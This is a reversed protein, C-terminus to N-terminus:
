LSLDIGVLFTRPVIAQFNDVGNYGVNNYWPLDPNLGPYKTITFVNQVSAYVRLNKVGKIWERPITFGLQMLNCKVFDAKALFFTSMKSFNGNPDPYRLIPFSNSTGEGHWFQGALGSTFNLHQTPNMNLRYNQFYKAGWSGYFETRFDLHGYSLQLTLGGTFKPWPAGLDTLDSNDIVGDGNTDKYKLDGAKADPQLLDGSKNVYAAAEADTQFVGGVIYGYWAGPEHGKTLRSRFTAIPDNAEHGLIPDMGGLDKVISKYHNLTFNVGLHLKHTINDHYSLTADWGKTTMSGVNAQQTPYYGQPYGLTYDVTVNELLNSPNRVYKEFTFNLKDKILTADLGFTYDKQIEWKIEPNAINSPMYGTIYGGAADPTTTPSLVTLYASTSKPLNGGSEGWSARLKLYSITSTLKEFFPEDSIVWAGSVTPFYGWRYAPNVLSSGDARFTGALYYKGKYNYRLSGFYSSMIGWRNDGATGPQYSGSGATVTAAASIYRFSQEDLPIDQRKAATGKYTYKDASQGVLADIHHDHGLTFKYHATNTVQWRTNVDTSSSLDSTKHNGNSALYYKPSYDNAQDANAFGSVMTKLILNPLPEAQLYTGYLLAFAEHQDFNTIYSFMPNTVGNFGSRNPQSYYPNFATMDMFGSPISKYVSDVTKYPATTPDMSYAAYTINPTTLWREYRPSLTFGVKFIRSIDIDGKLHATIKRWHGGRSTANYSDDKYYGLSGYLSLKDTGGSVSLMYNQMHGADFAMDWYNTGTVQDPNPFPLQAGSNKAEENMVRAYESAGAIKMDPLYSLGNTATLHIVPKGKGKKTTILIVGQGSRAGYIAAASADELVDITAIDSPNIFNLSNYGVEIGDMVVLPNTNNNISSLGHILIKPQTGPLGGGSIVQLGPVKGSLANAVNGTTWPAIDKASVSAISSTVSKRTTTEYGLVVVDNLRANGATLVIKLPSDGVTVDKTQMGIYSVELTNGQSAQLSFSGKDNTVTGKQTGKIVVTAGIVPSGDAAHVTGTVAQQGYAHNFVFCAGLLVLFRVTKKM